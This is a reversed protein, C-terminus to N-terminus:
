LPSLPLGQVVRDGPLSSQRGLPLELPALFEQATGTRLTAWVSAAHSSDEWKGVPAQPCSLALPSSALHWQGLTLTRFLWREM